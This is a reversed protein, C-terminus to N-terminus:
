DGSLVGVAWEATAQVDDDEHSTLAQIASLARSDGIQALVEVLEMILKADTQSQLNDLLATVIAPSKVTTLSQKAFYRTNDDDDHLFIKVLPAAVNELTFNGLAEAASARVDANDDDLAAILGDVAREDAIYGLSKAATRRVDADADNALTTLLPPVVQAEDRTGLAEAVRVRVTEDTDNLADLLPEVVTPSRDRGLRFASNRRVDPKPDNKLREIYDQTTLDFETM